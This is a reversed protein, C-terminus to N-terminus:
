GPTVTLDMPGQNNRRQYEPLAAPGVVDPAVAPDPTAEPEVVAQGRTFRSPPRPTADARAALWIAVTPLAVAAYAAFLGPGFAVPMRDGIPVIGNGYYIGSVGLIQEDLRATTAVLVALLGVAGGLAGTRLKGAAEARSLVSGAVALLGVMGFLYVLGFSSLDGIGFGYSRGAVDDLEEGGDSPTITQWDLLLSVLFAAAGLATLGVAWSGRRGGDGGVMLRRLWGWRGASDTEGRRPEDDLVVLADTV